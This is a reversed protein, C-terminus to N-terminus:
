ILRARECWQECAEVCKLRAAHRMQHEFIPFRELTEDMFQFFPFVWGFELAREMAEASKEFGEETLDVHAGYEGIMREIVGGADFLLTLVAQPVSGDM